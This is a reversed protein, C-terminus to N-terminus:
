ALMFYTESRATHATKNRSPRRHPLYGQALVEFVDRVEFHPAYSYGTILLQWDTLRSLFSHSPFNVALKFKAECNPRVCLRLSLCCCSLGRVRKADKRSVPSGRM